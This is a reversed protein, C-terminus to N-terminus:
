DRPRNERPTSRDGCPGPGPRGEYRATRRLYVMRINRHKREQIRDLSRGSRSSRWQRPDGLSGYLRRDDAPRRRKGGVVAVTEQDDPFGDAVLGALYMAEMIGTDYLECALAQQGKIKKAVVKLEAVSVGLLREAAMGHRVYTARTKESAKKKLEAIVSTVANMLKRRLQLITSNGDRSM